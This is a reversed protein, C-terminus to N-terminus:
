STLKGTFAKQLISKKLEDYRDLKKTYVSELKQISHRLGDLSSVIIHQTEIDPFPFTLNEFTGMNINDQASGQGKAQLMAKYSQLLYEVFKITTIDPNVVVGIVSDPFCSDFDLIGTEAINAAITICITGKPWLKSQALGKENYTKSYSTIIHESNRVDGTQIFPYEGGYLSEDNRPRHKSKGRGFDISAEKLTLEGWGDGRQSFVQQLYSEFLERANKLNQEANARAKKIDAFAHDLIAVIRKQENISPLFVEIKKLKAKNLTKGKIKIDSGAAADWDFFYLYWYLYDQLIKENDHIYLAAIAENTYLDAGTLALRGLSLKFSVILTNKPVLKCLNSAKNSIYEKSDVMVPKITLPLDAISLWINQTQKSNDWLSKDSRSPTKGLEIKCLDGLTEIRWTM